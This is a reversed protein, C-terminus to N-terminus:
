FWIWIFKNGLNSRIVDIYILRYCRNNSIFTKWFVYKEITERTWSFLMYQQQLDIVFCIIMVCVDIYTSFFHFYFSKNIPFQYSNSKISLTVKGNFNYKWSYLFHCISGNRFAADVCSCGNIFISNWDCFLNCLRQCSNVLEIYYVWRDLTLHTM